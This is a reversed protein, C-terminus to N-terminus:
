VSLKERLSSPKVFPVHYKKSIMNAVIRGSEYITPLGSGPHTGGGVLYMNDLDEFKNHPRFYLMQNISHALNFTAGLHVNAQGAWDAPTIIKEFDIKSRINALGLRKEMTDLVLDRFAMKEKVWDIQSNNNPVPVLVYINSKGIPALTKDHISANRVYLSTDPSLKLRKFIDDVNTCYDKAFVITHHALEPYEGDLGLYLMFTSSSFNKKKLKEPRWRDLADAPLLNNVVYGFDANVVVEDAFHKEGNTLEIGVVKKNRLLLQKVSANYNLDVGLEKGVKDMAVSIESLGKEVHYIGFAHEIFPIIIFLAPCEWASMGLYKSQFTFSLKLQEQRFYKGLYDYVSGLFPIHPIAKLFTPNFFEKFHTYDKQLCAFIYPFRESEKKFFKELGQAADPFYKVFEQKNKEKGDFINLLQEDILLRYMPDLRTFKLYDEVNRGAEEFMEDLIFKMMLFTPGVDFTYGAERIANNRGGPTSAKEYVSVNFGRKALIMASTLGGPGAGVIIIKKSM